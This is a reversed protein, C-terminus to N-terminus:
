ENLQLWNQRTNKRFGYQNEYFLNNKNFYDYVQHFVVKAIVKSMTYLLSIPRYNDLIYRDDKKYIPIVKALKLKSPFIGM